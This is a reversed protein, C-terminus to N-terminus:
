IMDARDKISHRYYEKRDDLNRAVLSILLETVEHNTGINAGGHSKATDFIRGMDEYGLYWPINGKSIIEDYIRYVLTDTKVLKLNSVETSGKEFFFEYYETGDIVIKMMSTPEIRMVANVMMIGYLNDETVIACIGAIYTEIGIFALGREAFRSPIYIRIPKVAVLRDDPLERLCAQVMSPDRRLANIDM